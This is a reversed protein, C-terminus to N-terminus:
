FRWFGFRDNAAGAVSTECASLGTLRGRSGLQNEPSLAFATLLDNRDLDLAALAGLRLTLDIQLCRRDLDLLSQSFPKPCVIVRARNKRIAKTKVAMLSAPPPTLAKLHVAM